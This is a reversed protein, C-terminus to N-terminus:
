LIYIRDVVHVSVCTWMCNELHRDSKTNVDNMPARERDSPCISVIGVAEVFISFAQNITNILCKISM